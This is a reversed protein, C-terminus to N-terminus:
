IFENNQKIVQQYSVIAQREYVAKPKAKTVEHKWTPIILIQLTHMRKEM